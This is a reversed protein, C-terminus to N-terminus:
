GRPLSGRYADWGVMRGAGDEIVAQVRGNCLLRRATESHIVPGNEIECSGAGTVLAGLDAHVVVTARDPDADAAIRASALAV